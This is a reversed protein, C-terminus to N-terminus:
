LQTLSRATCPLQILSCYLGYLHGYLCLWIILSGYLFATFASYADTYALQILLCYLRATYALYADTYALLGCGHGELCCGMAVPWALAM